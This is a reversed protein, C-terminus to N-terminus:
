HLLDQVASQLRDFKEAKEVLSTVYGYRQTKGDVVGLGDPVWIAYSWNKLEPNISIWQLKGQEDKPFNPHTIELNGTDRLIVSYDGLRIDETAKNSM